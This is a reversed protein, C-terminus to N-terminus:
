PSQSFPHTDTPEPYPGTAPEQSCPSSGEPEPAVSNAHFMVNVNMDIPQYSTQSSRGGDPRNNMGWTMHSYPYGRHFPVLSFRLVRLFVQGLAVKDVVFVVHLSGTPFGPRRSSLGAALRTLWPVASFM